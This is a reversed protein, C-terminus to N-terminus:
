SVRVERLSGRKVMLAVKDKEWGEITTMNYLM